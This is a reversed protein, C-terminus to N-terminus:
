HIYGLSRLQRLLRPDLDSQAVIGAAKAEKTMKKKMEQFERALPEFEKSRKTASLDKQEKPDESLAYMERTLGKNKEVIKRTPTRICAYDDQISTESIVPQEGFDGEQGRLLPCLSRGQCQAPIPLGAMDLLTPMLDIHTVQKRVVAGPSIRKPFRIILPIRILEDYLTHGHAVGGHDWFEEGHDATIVIVTDETLGLKNLGEILEGIKDDTYRIEGDHLGIIQEKDAPTLTKGALAKIGRGNQEGQYDPATFMEDYPAPPTYDCHPDFYLLFLFFPVGPKRKDKLWSGAQFTMDASCPTGIVDRRQSGKDEFFDLGVNFVVTSDDYLGFGRGFGFQSNMGPNSIIGATQYGGKVLEAALSTAGEALSRTYNVVNHASPSLSTFMSMVSPLTWSSAAIACEFRIGETALRDMAPTTARKYGYCGVHDSRLTDVVIFLINPRREEDATAGGIALVLPFLLSIIRRM